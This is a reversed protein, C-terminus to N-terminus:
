VKGKVLLEATKPDYRWGTPLSGERIYYKTLRWIKSEIRNLRTKNYIDHKQKELHKRMRVAKKILDLLTPPVDFAIGQETLIDLLRKGTAQKIFKVNHEKKLKEGIMAPEIGQKAYEVIMKIIEDKSIGEAGEGIHEMDIAPKRSKSKGHKKTYMRAM